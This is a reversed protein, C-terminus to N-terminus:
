SPTAWGGTGEIMHRVDCVTVEPSRGTLVASFDLSKGDTTEIRLMQNIWSSGPCWVREEYYTFKVSDPDLGEAVMTKKVAAISSEAMASDIESDDVPWTSSYYPGDFSEPAVTVSTGNQSHLETKPSSSVGEDPAKACQSGADPGDGSLVSSRSAEEVHAQFSAIEGDRAAKTRCCGTDELFAGLSSSSTGTTTM